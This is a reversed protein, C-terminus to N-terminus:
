KCIKVDLVNVVRQAYEVLRIASVINKLVNQNKVIVDKKWRILLLFFM